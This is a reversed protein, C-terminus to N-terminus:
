LPNKYGRHLRRHTNLTERIVVRTLLLGRVISVTDIAPFRSGQLFFTPKIYTNYSINPVTNAYPLPEYKEVSKTIKSYM